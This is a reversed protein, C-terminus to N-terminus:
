SVPMGVHAGSAVLHAVRETPSSLVNRSASRPDKMHPISTFNMRLLHQGARPVAVSTDVRRRAEPVSSDVYRRDCVRVYACFPRSNHRRALHAESISIFSTLAFCLASFCAAPAALWLSPTLSHNALPILNIMVLNISTAFRTYIRDHRNSHM